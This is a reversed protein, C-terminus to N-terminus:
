RVQYSRKRNRESSERATKYEKAPRTPTPRTTPSLYPGLVVGDSENITIYKEDGMFKGIIEYDKVEVHVLQGKEYRQQQQQQRKHGWTEVKGQTVVMHFKGGYDIYLDDNVVDLIKGVLTKGHFSELQLLPSNYLLSEFLDEPESPTEHPTEHSTEHPTEELSNLSDEVADMISPGTTATTTSCNRTNNNNNNNNNNNICTSVINNSPLATTLRLTRM